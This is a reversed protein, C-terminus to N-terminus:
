DVSDTARLRICQPHESWRAAACQTQMCRYLAFQTRGSCAERPNTMPPPAAVKPAPPVHRVPVPTKALATPARPQPRAQVPATAVPPAAQPTPVPVAEPAPAVAAPPAASTVDPVPVPAVPPATARQPAPAPAPAPLAPSVGVAPDSRPTATPATVPAVAAAPAPAPVPAPAPAPEVVAPGASTAPITMLPADRMAWWGGLGASALLLVFAAGIWRASRRPTYPQHRDSGRGAPHTVIRDIDAVDPEPDPEIFRSSLMGPESDFSPPPHTPAAAAPSPAAPAPPAPPPPSKHVPPTHPPRRTERRPLTGLSGRFGAVSRPRAGPVYDLAADLANLLAPSYRPADPGTCIRQVMEAMPEHAGEPPWEHVPPPLEGGIFYRMTAAVGYIDTWPGLPKDPRPMRQEPAGFAPEVSAMLSEILENKSEAHALDPSLLLPHDNALLLVNGPTVGGHVVGADHLAQLAGLLGDILARVSLEDPPARMEKRVDLLSVGGRHPQVQYATGHAEIM